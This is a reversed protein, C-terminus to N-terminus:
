RVDRQAQATSLKVEEALIALSEDLRQTMDSYLREHIPSLAAARERAPAKQRVIQDLQGDLRVIDRYLDVLTKYGKESVLRRSKSAQNRLRSLTDWIGAEYDAVSKAYQEEYEQSGNYAVKMSLYRWNWLVETTDDLFKAQADIL